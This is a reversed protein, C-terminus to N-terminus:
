EANISVPPKGVRIVIQGPAFQNGPRDLPVITAPIGAAKFAWNVRLHTTALTGPTDCDGPFALILIGEEMCPYSAANASLNQPIKVPTHAFGWDTSVLAFWIREALKQGDQDGAFYCVEVSGPFGNSTYTQSDISKKFKEIQEDSIHWPGFAKKLTSIQAQYDESTQRSEADILQGKRNGYAHSAIEFVLVLFFFVIGIWFCWNEACSVSQISNWNPLLTM